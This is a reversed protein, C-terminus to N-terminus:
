PLAEQDNTMLAGLDAAAGAFGFIEYQAAGISFTDGVITQNFNPNIGTGSFPLSVIWPIRGRVVAASSTYSQTPSVWVYYPFVPFGNVYSSLPATSGPSGKMFIVGLPVSTTVGDKAVYAYGNHSMTNSTVFSNSGSNTPMVVMNHSAIMCLGPDASDLVPADGGFFMGPATTNSAAPNNCIILVSRDTRIAYWGLMNTNTVIYRFVQSGNVSEQLPTPFVTAGVTGRVKIYCTTAQAVSNDFQIKIQSGGPAQYSVINTADVTKTWPSPGQLFIWDLITIFTGIGATVRGPVSGGQQWNAYFYGTTM